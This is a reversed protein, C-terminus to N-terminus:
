LWAPKGDELVFPREEHHSGVEVLWYLGGSPIGEFQLARGSAEQSGLKNWGNNWLFLEYIKGNALRYGAPGRTVADVTVTVPMSPCAIIPRIDGQPTLVFPVGAAQVGKKSFTAPLYLINRGMGGFTAKGGGSVRAWQIPRWEGDNFVCLYAHRASAPQVQVEVDTTPLYQRTVDVYDPRNLWPPLEEGRGADYVLNAPQNAFCKRYIKAAKGVSDHGQGNRDLVVPWAHNNGTDAWYPTFDIACPIANSRLAMTNLNSIDGCRGKGSKKMETYGQETPHMYYLDWFGFWQNLGNGVIGAAEKLDTPDKMGAAIGAYRAMLEGRWTEAPEKGARYPLVYDRFTEYSMGAAWPLTRWAEFAKDIHDILFEAKLERLDLHATVKEGLAGHQKELADYASVAADLNPHKLSDFGVERGAKDVVSVIKYAKGIMNGVLWKAAGSKQPDGAYHDLVKRIEPANPGAERLAASVPDRPYPAGAAPLALAFALAPLIAARGSTTM